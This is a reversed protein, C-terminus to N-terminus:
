MLYILRLTARLPILSVLGNLLHLSLTGFPHLPVRLGKPFTDQSEPSIKPRQDCPGIQTCFSCSPYTHLSEVMSLKILPCCCKTNSEKSLLCSINWSQGSIISNAACPCCGPPMTRASSYSLCITTKRVMFTKQLLEPTISCFLKYSRTLKHSMYTYLTNSSCLKMSKTKKHINWRNKKHDPM